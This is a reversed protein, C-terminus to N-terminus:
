KPPAQTCPELRRSDAQVKVIAARKLQFNNL